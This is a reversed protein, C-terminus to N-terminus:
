PILFSVGIDTAHFTSGHFDRTHLFFGGVCGPVNANTDAVAQVIHNSGVGQYYDASAIITATAPNIGSDPTLRVCYQGPGTAMKTVTVNKSKGAVLTGAATIVGYARASGPAGPEGPPGPEGPAGPEGPSGTGTLERLESKALDALTLSGNKVEASKVANTKIQNSGVSNKPLQVAAYSTGGLAVVLALTATVSGYNLASTRRGLRRTQTTRTHPSTTM